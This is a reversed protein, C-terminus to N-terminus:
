PRRRRVLADVWQTKDGVQIRLKKTPFDIAVIRQRRLVIDKAILCYPFNPLDNPYGSRVGEPVYLIVPDASSVDGEELVTVAPSSLGSLPTNVVQGDPFDDASFQCQFQSEKGASVNVDASASDVVDGGSKEIIDIPPRDSVVPPVVVASVGALVSQSAEPDGVDVDGNVSEDGDVSASDEDCASSSEANGVEMKGDDMGWNKDAGYVGIAFSPTPALSASAAPVVPPRAPVSVAAAEAPRAPVSVAAAEAPRAPVSVAAAEAPRAPFSVAAAEAPTPDQSAVSSGSPPVADGSSPVTDWARPANKCNRALHGPQLCRRCKGKLPCVKSVHGSKGCIDCEVPQGRYWVKVLVGNVDLSRPISAKRVMRVIRTGTAVTNLDPYHQMSVDHVEGFSSLVRRLASPNSEFPYHFVLVNEMKPGPRVVRCQVNGIAITDVSEVSRKADSSRFTVQVHGGPVFQISEVPFRSSFKADVCKAIDVRSATSPFGAVNLVVTRLFPGAM